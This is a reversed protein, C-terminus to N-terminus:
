AWPDGLATLQRLHERFSIEGRQYAHIIALALRRYTRKTPKM